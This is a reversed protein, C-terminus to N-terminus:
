LGIRIMHQMMLCPSRRIIIVNGGCDRKIMLSYGNNVNCSFVNNQTVFIWPEVFELWFNSMLQANSIFSVFSIVRLRRNECDRGSVNTKIYSRVNLYTNRASFAAADHAAFVLRNFCSHLLCAIQLTRCREVGKRFGYISHRKTDNSGRRSCYQIANVASYYSWNIIFLQLWLTSKYIRRTGTM